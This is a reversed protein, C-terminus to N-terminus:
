TFIFHKLWIKSPEKAFYGAEHNYVYIVRWTTTWTVITVYVWPVHITSTMAKFAEFSSITVHHVHSVGAGRTWFSGCELFSSSWTRITSDTLFEANDLSVLILNQNHWWKKNKIRKTLTWTSRLSHCYSNMPRLEHVPGCNTHSPFVM